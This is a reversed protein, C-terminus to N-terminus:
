LKLTKLIDFPSATKLTTCGCQKQNLDLGCNVCLGKCLPDCRPTMPLVLLIEETVLHHLSIPENNLYILDDEIQLHSGAALPAVGPHYLQDIKTELQSFFLNLCCSCQLQVTALISGQIHLKGKASSATIDLKASNSVTAVGSIGVLKEAPVIGFFRRSVRRVLDLDVEVESLDRTKKEVTM